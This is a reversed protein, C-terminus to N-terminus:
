TKVVFSAARRERRIRDLPQDLEDALPGADRKRHMEVHEPMTAAVLQGVVADVGARDLVPETMHRDGVGRAVRCQTLRPEFVEPPVSQRWSSREFRDGTPGM